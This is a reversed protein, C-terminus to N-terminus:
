TLYITPQQPTACSPPGTDLYKQTTGGPRTLETKNVTTGKNYFYDCTEDSTEAWGNPFNLRFSIRSSLFFRCYILLKFNYHGNQPLM